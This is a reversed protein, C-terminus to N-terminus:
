YLQWDDESQVEGIAIWAMRVRAVRTDGWTRFVIEFGTATVSEAAIDARVNANSDMDWLALSLQVSPPSRFPSSFRVERRRERAGHGTWMEGGNKFDSFVEVTGQDVGVLHANLLKM